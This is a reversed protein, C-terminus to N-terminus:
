AAKSPEPEAVHGARRGVVRLELQHLPRHHQPRRPRLTPPADVFRNRITLRDVGVGYAAADASAVGRSRRRLPASFPQRM